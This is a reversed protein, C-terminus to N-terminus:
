VGSTKGAIEFAEKTNELALMAAGRHAILKIM